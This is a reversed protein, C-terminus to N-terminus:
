ILSYIFTFFLKGIVNLALNQSESRGQKNEAICRYNGKDPDRQVNELVLTGNPFVM